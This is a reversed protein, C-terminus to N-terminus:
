LRCEQQLLLVLTAHPPARAVPLAVPSSSAHPLRSSADRTPTHGSLKEVSWNCM